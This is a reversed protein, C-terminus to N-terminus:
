AGTDNLRGLNHSRRSFHDIDHRSITVSMRRDVRTVAANAHSVKAAVSLVMLRLDGPVCFGFDKM